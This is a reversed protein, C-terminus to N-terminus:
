LISLTLCACWRTRNPTNDQPKENKWRALREGTHTTTSRVGWEFIDASRQALTVHQSHTHTRENRPFLHHLVATSRARFEQCSILYRSWSLSWFLDNQQLKDDLIRVKEGTTWCRLSRLLRASAHTPSCIPLVRAGDDGAVLMYQACECCLMWFPRRKNVNIFVFPIFVRRRLEVKMPPPPFSSMQQSRSFDGDIHSLTLLFRRVTRPNNQSHKKKTAFKKVWM